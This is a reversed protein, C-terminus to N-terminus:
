KTTTVHLVGGLNRWPKTEHLTSRFREKLRTHHALPMRRWQELHRCHSFYIVSLISQYTFRSNSPNFNEILKSNQDIKNMKSNVHVPLGVIASPHPRNSICAIYIIIESHTTRLSYKTVVEQPSQRSNEMRPDRDRGEFHTYIFWM